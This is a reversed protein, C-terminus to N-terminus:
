EALIVFHKECTETVEWFGRFGNPILFSDGPGFDQRTGDEHILACRGSLIHCYEDRDTFAHWRGPTSVWYGAKLRGGAGSYRLGIKQRPDGQTVRGPEDALHRETLTGGPLSLDIVHSM